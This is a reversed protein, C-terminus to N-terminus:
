KRAEVKSLDYKSDREFEKNWDMEISGITMDVPILRVIQNFILSTAGIGICFLWEQWSLHRTATFASASEVIAVQLGITILMIIPFYPNDFFGTFVDWEGTVRRANIENFIQFFVFTNFLVTLHKDARKDRFYDDYDSDDSDMEIPNDFWEHALTLIVFLIPLQFFAHGFVFRWMSLSILHTSPKYPLRELLALTPTETALALAALTDMILNVWLLQVGTLPMKTSEGTATGGLALSLAVVNVTLQFQVFKRINDYVSRGWMVTKVISAFNDDMIVIDCARKAVDTGQIGMALGVDATKLALADNAGDGTVAVVDIGRLLPTGSEDIEVEGDANRVAHEQQYWNVLMEKDKPNSRALVRLMPLRQEKEEETLGRFEAGTMCVHRDNTLIGCEKAIYKATEIHDGTVMRVVVGAEQVRRVAEPVEPRVPDKIGCLSVWAFGQWFEPFEEPKDLIKGNEDRKIEDSKFRKMALGLCRLGTRTMIDMADAVDQRAKEALPETGGTPGVQMSCMDLVREAAGKVYMTFMDPSSKILVCSRKLASHFPYAKAIVNEPLGRTKELDDCGLSIAWRVLACETQNAGALKMGGKKDPQLTAESNVVISDRIVAKLEPDMSAADPMERHHQGGIFVQKVTMKNQTLTGTKDSCITTANGMTECASLVRVFNNDNMMQKMSYALSLTVALPLGEPVAVVIIVVAIIFYTIIENADQAGKIAWILTLVSFIALATGGGFKGIQDGLITLKKQLPTDQPKEQLQLLAKGQYSNDGVAVVLMLGTGSAVETGSLILPDQFNKAIDDAEGTLQSENVKLDDTGSCFFGDAPVEAGAKLLVIDGVVIQHNSLAVQKGGRIVYCKKVQNQQDMERFKAEKASDNFASVFVVICVAILVAAGDIWGTEAGHEVIGIVVNVIGAVILLQLMRDELTEKCLVWFPTPPQQTYSNVGYKEVRFPFSQEPPDTPNTETAIGLKVNSYIAFAIGQVGGMQALRGLVLNKNQFNAVIDEFEDGDIRFSKASVLQDERDLSGDNLSQVTSSHIFSM